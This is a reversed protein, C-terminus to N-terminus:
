LYCPWTARQCPRLDRLRTILALPLKLNRSEVRERTTGGKEWFFPFSSTGLVRLNDPFWKLILLNNGALRTRMAVTGSNCITTSMSRLYHSVACSAM